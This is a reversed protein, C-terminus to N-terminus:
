KAGGVNVPMAQAIAEKIRQKSSESLMSEDIVVDPPIPLGQKIFNLLMEFNAEKVTETHVNEGIAVDYKSLDIDNLIENIILGVKEKNLTMQLKQTNPDLVPKGTEDLAPESFNKNIFDDGLVKIVSEVTYLEGLICILFRGILRKTRSLNDMIRQIMLFGQRQRLQIAVGSSDKNEQMLLLDENIGSIKKMDQDNKEALVSHGVSLQGPEIREPKAFNKKYELDVGPSTGFEKVMDPNTWAGEEHLWGSNAQSNLIRLEQTRRKNKEAQPSKLQRVIGQHLLERNKIRTTIRHAYYPFIPYGKWKPYTWCLKDDLVDNQTGILSAVWIEPVKREVIAVTGWNNPDREANAKYSEADELSPAEQMKGLKRDMVWYKKVYKKYYYEVLDYTKEEAAEIDKIPDHKYSDKHVIVENTKTDFEIKGNEIRDIEKEKKPFLQLLQDKTLDTKIKIVFKADSLDYEVCDPDVIIEFPDTKSWKLEGTLLDYTYDIYPELFGEGCIIGDEFQDSVKHELDTIRAANNLLCTVINAKISDEEGIPFGVFDTRNQRQVGSCMFIYPQISNITLARVGAQELKAVDEDKWQKGLTFEFDEEAEKVWKKKAEFARSFDSLIKDKKM